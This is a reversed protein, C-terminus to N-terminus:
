QNSPYDFEYITQWNREKGENTEDYIVKNFDFFEDGIKIQIYYPVESQSTRNRYWNVCVRYRGPIPKNIYINEIPFEMIENSKANADIDLVGSINQNEKISYSLWDGNPDIIALDIDDNTEWILSVTIKGIKGGERKRRKEIENQLSDIVLSDKEFKILVKQLSDNMLKLSDVINCCDNDPEINEDKKNCSNCQKLLFLIFLLLLLWKLIDWISSLCGGNRTNDTIVPPIYKNWVSDDRDIPTPPLVTNGGIPPPPIVADDNNSVPVSSIKKVKGVLEGKLIGYTKGNQEWSSEVKVNKLVLQDFDYIKKEQNIKGKPHIQVNTVNHLLMGERNLHEEPTFFDISIAETLDGKYLHVHHLESDPIKEGISIPSKQHTFFSGIFNGSVYKVSKDM